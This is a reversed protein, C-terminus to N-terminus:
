EFHLHGGQVPQLLYQSRHVNLAIRKNQRLLHSIFRFSAPYQIRQYSFVLFGRSSREERVLGAVRLQHPAVHINLCSADSTDCYLKQLLELVVFIPPQLRVVVVSALPLEILM